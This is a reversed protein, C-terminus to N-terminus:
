KSIKDLLKNIQSDKERIQADKEKIQSKADELQQSMLEVKQKLIEIENTLGNVTVPAQIVGSNKESHVSASGNTNNNGQLNNNTTTEIFTKSNNLMEGQGRMLWDSSLKPYRELIKAIKNVGIESKGNIFKGVVGSSVGIYIELDQKSINQNNLFYDLRSKIDGMYKFLFYKILFYDSYIKNKLIYDIINTDYDVVCGCLLV